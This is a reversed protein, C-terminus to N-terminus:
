SACMDDICRHIAFEIGIRWRRGIRSDCEEKRHNLATLRTKAAYRSPALRTFFREIVNRNQFQLPRRRLFSAHCDESRDFAVAVLAASQAHETDAGIM